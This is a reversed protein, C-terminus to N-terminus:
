AGLSEAFPQDSILFVTTSDHSNGAPALRVQPFFAATKWQGRIRRPDVTIAHDLRNRLLVATIYTDNSRWAILPMATVDDGSLLPVTRATHMPIRYIDDPNTLLRKPAYLQQIAFRTLTTYAVTESPQKVPTVVNEQSSPAITPNNDTQPVIISLPATDADAKVSLNILILEGSQKLQVFIRQTDFSKKALFYITGNVNQIGLVDNTLVNNDYGLQVSDPFSILREKNLPLTINIPVKNWILHETSAVDSVHTTETKSVANPFVRQLKEAQDPTLTLPQITQTDAVALAPLLSIILWCSYLFSQRLM